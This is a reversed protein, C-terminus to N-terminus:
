AANVTTEKFIKLVPKIYDGDKTRPMGEKKVWRRLTRPTVKIFKAAKEQTKIIQSQKAPGLLALRRKREAMCTKKKESFKITKNKEVTRRNPLKVGLKKLLRTRSPEPLSKMKAMTGIITNEQLEFYGYVDKLMAKDTDSIKECLALARMQKAGNEFCSMMRRVRKDVTLTAIEKEDVLYVGQGGGVFLLRAPRTRNQLERNVSNKLIARKELWKYHAFSKRSPVSGAGVVDEWWKDFTFLKYAKMKKLCDNVIKEIPRM